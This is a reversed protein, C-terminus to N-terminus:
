RDSTKGEVLQRSDIGYKKVIKKITGDQIMDELTDSLKAVIQKDYNLNFAVGIKTQMIPKDLFYYAKKNDKIYYRLAEDHAVVADAYGKNFAAVADMLNKYTSIQEVSLEGTSQKKLFYEEAKTDVQVAINKGNLDSLKKIGSDSRVLVKQDCKLYPRTWQYEKERGDISFGCWLCDVKQNKLLEKQNGWIIKKFVPQYGMRKFAEKAIEIDSGTMNGKEDIYAYPEYLDYGIVIHKQNKQKSHQVEESKDGCSTLFIATMLVALLMFGRKKM